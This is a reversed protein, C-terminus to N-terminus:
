PTYRKLLFIVYVISALKSLNLFKEFNENRCMIMNWYSRVMSLFRQSIDYSRPHKNGRMRCINSYRCCFVWQYHYYAQSTLTRFYNEAANEPLFYWRYFVEAFFTVQSSCSATCQEEHKHALHLLIEHAPTCLRACFAM